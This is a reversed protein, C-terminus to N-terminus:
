LVPRSMPLPTLHEADQPNTIDVQNNKAWKLLESAKGTKIIRGQSILCLNGACSAIKAKKKPQFLRM